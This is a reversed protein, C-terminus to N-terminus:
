TVIALPVSKELFTPLLASAPEPEKLVSAVLFYAAIVALSFHEHDTVVSVPAGVNLIVVLETVVSGVLV